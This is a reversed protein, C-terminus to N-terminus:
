GGPADNAVYQELSNVERSLDGVKEELLGRISLLGVVRGHPDLVPLHRLHGDLMLSIAEDATCQDEVSKVDATMVDSVVTSEALRRAKVVRLMLDRETFIGRLVGDDVVAVAGVRNNAMVAVADLVSVGSEVTPPPVHALKLLGM